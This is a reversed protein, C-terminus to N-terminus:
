TAVETQFADPWGGHEDIVRDVEAMLRITESLVVVIKQYHATDDDSLVRGRRDKLWKECVQYGGVRFNWVTEPVGQFGSSGARIANGTGSGDIWVTGGADSTWVIRGIKRTNGVLETIPQDLTTSELLHLDVLESGLRALARFLQISRTLPLRPFDIKLHEKYRSRYNQSYVVAYIYNFIEEPKLGAPLGPVGPDVDLAKAIAALFKPTFNVRAHGSSFLGRNDDNGYLYLPAFYDQGKNGLYFTGQSTPVRSALFHSVSDGVIQRNFQLGVNKHLIVNKMLEVRSDGRVIIKNAKDLPYFAFRFDFARYMIRVIDQDKWDAFFRRKDRLKWDATENFEYKELLDEDALQNVDHLMKEVSTRTYHKKVLLSDKRFKIGSSYRDFAENLPFGRFYEAGDGLSKSRLFFYPTQPHLEKAEPLRGSALASYKDARPGILDSYIVGRETADSRSSLVSIAVGQQIDFVNEDLSSVPIEHRRMVSGHLNVVKIHFDKFLLERIRRHTMGDLFSNNTIIGVVANGAANKLYQILRIFKIYDDSLSNLNNEGLGNKYAAMLAEIWNGRNASSISYPPNGVIVTFRKNRKVENVVTSEHALAEFDPLTLQKQWTELANTLYIRAREVSGFTYGTEKLKLGIKMHAIAYPAMKLEYAYLRPLLYKPVYENWAAERQTVGLGSRTWKDIMTRHIVEIVEVLFTGTGTAPDLIQVFPEDSDLPYDNGADDQLMPLQLRPKRRLMESWTATDALGDALGFERQLLEHVSNVIYSVVPQPTYFEGRRVKDIPDYLKAFGEYFHIVPDEDRKRNGFDRLVAEMRTSPDNLLDVVEQIGLEDFDLKGRRGGAKLFNQLMEKLFPNTVPIMDVVNGQVVATGAGPVTRSVAASFLGYTITQAYMDAFQTEDLDHILATKFGKLLRQLEGKESERPLVELMRNRIRKALEALRQALEEATDIVHRHRLEFAQSWQERWGSLDTADAPWTLSAKLKDAVYDLKLNTDDDDWGLVRLTAKTDHLDNDPESFHAFTLQRDDEEGYSSIFLLDHQQWAARRAQSASVRKKTVLANLIRRLIVIPLKQKEFNVFFIGWPQGTELPRLQKIEKIGVRESDKLGLDDSWDFTLDDEDFGQEIPWDLEDRLYAILQDFRKINRLRQREDETM